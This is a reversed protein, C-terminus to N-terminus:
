ARHLRLINELENGPETMLNYYNMNDIFELYLASSDLELARKYGKYYVKRLKVRVERIAELTEM